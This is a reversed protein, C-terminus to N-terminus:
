RLGVGDSQSGDGDRRRVPELDVGDAMAVVDEGATGSYGRILRDLASLAISVFGFAVLYRAGAAPLGVDGRLCPGLTPLWLALGVLLAVSFRASPNM